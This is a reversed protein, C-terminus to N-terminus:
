PSFTAINFDYFLHCLLYLFDSAPQVEPFLVAISNLLTCHCNYRLLLEILGLAFQVKDDSKDGGQGGSGGSQKQGQFLLVDINFCKM